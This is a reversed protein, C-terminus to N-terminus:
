WLRVYDVFGVWCRYIAYGPYGPYGASGHQVPHRRHRCNGQYCGDVPLQCPPDNPKPHRIDWMFKMSGIILISMVFPHGLIVYM